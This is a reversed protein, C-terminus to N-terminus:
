IMKMALDHASLRHVNLYNTADILVEDISYVIIDEPAIYKLYIEYIRTSYEM